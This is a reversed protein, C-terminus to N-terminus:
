LNISLYVIEEKPKRKTKGSYQIMYVEQQYYFQVIKNWNKWFKEQHKYQMMLKFNNNLLEKVILPFYNEFDLLGQLAKSIIQRIHKINHDLERSQYAIIAEHKIDFERYMTIIIQDELVIPRIILQGYGKEIKILSILYNQDPNEELDICEEEVVSINESFLDNESIEEYPDEEFNTNFLDKEEQEYNYLQIIEEINEESSEELYYNEKFNNDETQIVNLSSIYDEESENYTEKIVNIPDVHDEEKLSYTTISSLVNNDLSNDTEKNPFM